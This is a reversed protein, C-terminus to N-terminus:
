EVELNFKNKLFEVIEEKSVHQKKPLRKQKIKRSAIRKGKRKFIVTVDLGLIGIDRHYEMDPIELYEHIGFSFQNEVVQKKKIKNDIAGLLRKLLAEKEKGRITVLCGTQLGPRVGFSPIRKNSSSRKIKRGTLISLLKESKELKEATAGCNLVVKEIEINRMVNQEVM